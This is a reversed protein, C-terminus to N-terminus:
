EAERLQQFTASIQEIGDGNSYLSSEEICPLDEQFHDQPGVFLRLLGRSPVHLFNRCFSM